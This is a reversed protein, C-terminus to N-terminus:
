LGDNKYVLDFAKLEDRKNMVGGDPVCGFVCPMKEVAGWLRCLLPRDEYVSCKGDKLLNCTLTKQHFDLYAAHRKLIRTREAVSAPVPGCSEACLGKCSLHPVMAYARDLRNAM